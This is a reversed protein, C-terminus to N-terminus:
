NLNDRKNEFTQVDIGLKSFYTGCAYDLLIVGAYFVNFVDVLNMEAYYVAKRSDVLNDITGKGDKYDGLKQHYVRRKSKVTDYAAEYQQWKSKAVFMQMEIQHRTALHQAKILADYKGIEAVARGLSYSLLTPDIKTIRIGAEAVYGNRDQLDGGSAVDLQGDFDVFVDWKGKIALRKKEISNARANGLVKIRIDNQRARELLQDLTATLYFKGYHEVEFLNFNFLNAGNIQSIDLSELGISRRLDFLIGNIEQKGALNYGEVERIESEILAHARINKARPLEMISRLDSICKNRRVIHEQRWAIAFYRFQARSINGRLVNIYALQTNFMENEQRSRDTIRRLTTNSSFLPLTIDTEIFSSQGSGSDGFRGRHGFGGFISGGDFFNKEAGVRVSYDQNEDPSKDRRDLDSRFIIPTFQSLNREFDKFQYQAAEMAYRTAAVEPNHEYVLGIISDANIVIECTKSQPPLEDTQRPQACFASNCLNLIVVLCLFYWWILAFDKGHAYKYFECGQM